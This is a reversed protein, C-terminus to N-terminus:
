VRGVYFCVCECAQGWVSMCVCLYHCPHGCAFIEVQVCLLKSCCIKLACTHNHTTVYIFVKWREPSMRWGPVRAEVFKNPLFLIGVTGRSEQIHQLVHQMSAQLYSQGMHADYVYIRVCASRTSM